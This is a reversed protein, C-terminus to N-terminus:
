RWAASSTVKALAPRGAKPQRPRAFTPSSVSARATSRTSQPKSAVNRDPPWTGTAGPRPTPPRPTRAGRVESTAPRPGGEDDGPGVAHEPAPQERRVLWEGGQEDREVVDRTMKGEAAGRTGAAPSTGGAILVRSAAFVRGFSSRTTKILRIQHTIKPMAQPAPRQPRRSACAARQRSASAQRRPPEPGGSRASSGRGRAARCRRGNPPISWGELGGARAM